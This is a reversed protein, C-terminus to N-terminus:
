YVNLEGNFPSENSPSLQREYTIRYSLKFTTFLINEDLPAIHIQSIVLMQGFGDLNNPSNEEIHEAVSSKESQMHHKYEM